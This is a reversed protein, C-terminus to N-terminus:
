SSLFVSSTLFGVLFSGIYRTLASKGDSNWNEKREHRTIDLIALIVKTSIAGMIINMLNQHVYISMGAYWLLATSLTKRLLGQM